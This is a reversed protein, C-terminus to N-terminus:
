QNGKYGGVFLPGRSIFLEFIKAMEQPSEKCDNNFWQQVLGMNAYSIYSIYYESPVMLNNKNNLLDSNAKYWEDWMLEKMRVTFSSESKTNLFAKMLDRIEYLYSFIEVAAAIPFNTIEHLAKKPVYKNRINLLNGMVENEYQEMLDFKDQYYVYFTGRNIKATTTIDKVTLENFGKEEILKIFAQRISEKTRIVRLDPNKNSM